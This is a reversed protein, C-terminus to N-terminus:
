PTVERLEPCGEAHYGVGACSACTGMSVGCTGCCGSGDDTCFRGAWEAHLERLVREQCSPCIGHTLQGAPLEPAPGQDQECWACVRRGCPGLPLVNGHGSM